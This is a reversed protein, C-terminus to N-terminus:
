NMTKLALGDDAALPVKMHVTTGNGPTSVIKLRGGLHSLKERIDFLGYGSGSESNGASPDTDFGDGDDSVSVEVVGGHSRIDIRVQDSRAHKVANHVLEKINRYLIIKMDGAIAEMDGQFRPEVQLNHRSHITDALCEVAEKLGLDYLVPPSLDFTMTRIRSIMALQNDKIKKIAEGTEPHDQVKKELANLQLITVFLEQGIEEHLRSALERRQKEETMSLQISLRQLKSQYQLLRNEVQLREKILLDLESKTRGIADFVKRFHRNEYTRSDIFNIGERQWDISEIYDLLAAACRCTLMEYFRNLLRSFFRLPRTASSVSPARISDKEHRAIIKLALAIAQEYTDVAYAPKRDFHLRRALNFSIRPLPALHYLVGGIFNRTRFYDFYKKRAAFDAGKVKAYDEIVVLGIDPDFNRSIFEDSFALTRTMQAAVVFGTARLLLIRDGLKAIELRYGGAPDIGTLVEPYTVPLNSFSCRSRTQFWAPPYNADIPM